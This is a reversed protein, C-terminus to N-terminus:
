NIENLPNNGYMQLIRTNLIYALFKHKLLLIILRVNLCSLCYTHIVYTQQVEPHGDSCHFLLFAYKTHTDNLYV